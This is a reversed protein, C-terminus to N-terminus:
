KTPASYNLMANINVVTIDGYEEFISASHQLPSVSNKTNLEGIQIVMDQADDDPKLTTLVNSDPCNGTYNNLSGIACLVPRNNTRGPAIKNLDGTQQFKQFKGSVESCRRQPHYGAKVFYPDQWIILTIEGRIPHDAITAPKGGDTGCYFSAYGQKQQAQSHQSLGAVVALTFCCITAWKNVFQFRM